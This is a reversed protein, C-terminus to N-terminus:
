VINWIFEIVNKEYNVNLILMKYKQGNNLEVTWVQNEKLTSNQQLDKIDSFPKTELYFKYAEERNDFRKMLVLKSDMSEIFFSSEEKQKSVRFGSSLPLGDIIKKSFQNIGSEPLLLFRKEKFSAKFKDNMWFTIVGYNGQNILDWRNWQTKCSVGKGKFIKEFYSKYKTVINKDYFLQGRFSKIHQVVISDDIIIFQNSNKIFSPNINNTKSFDNNSVINYETRSLRYNRIVDEVTENNMGGTLKAPFIFRVNKTNFPCDLFPRYYMRTDFNNVEIRNNFGSIAYPDELYFDIKKANELLQKSDIVLENKVIFTKTSIEIQKNQKLISYYSINVKLKYINNEDSEPYIIFRDMESDPQYYYTSDSLLDYFKTKSNIKIGIHYNTPTAQPGQPFCITKLPQFDVIELEMKSIIIKEKNSSPTSLSFDIFRNKLFTVEKDTGNYFPSSNNYSIILKPSYSIKQYSSILVDKFVFSLIGLIGGIIAIRLAVSDNFLRNGKM